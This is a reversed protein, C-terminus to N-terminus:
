TGLTLSGATSRYFPFGSRYFYSGECPNAASVKKLISFVTLLLLAAMPMQKADRERQKHKTM